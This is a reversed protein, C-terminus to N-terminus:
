KRVSKKVKEVTEQAKAKIESVNKNIVENSNMDVSSETPVLVWALLYILIGSGGWVSFVIFILRVITPDINLYEGLGGCVGAIVRNKESRYLKKNQM